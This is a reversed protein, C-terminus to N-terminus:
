MIVPQHCSSAKRLSVLSTLCPTESFVSETHRKLGEESKVPNKRTTKKVSWISSSKKGRWWREFFAFSHASLSDSFVNVQACPPTLHCTGNAQLVTHEGCHRLISTLLTLWEFAFGFFAPYHCCGLAQMWPNLILPQHFCQSEACSERKFFWIFLLLLLRGNGASSLAIDLRCEFSKDLLFRIQHLRSHWPVWNGNGQKWARTPIKM